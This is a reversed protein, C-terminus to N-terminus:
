RSAHHVGHPSNSNLASRKIYKMLAPGICELSLIEEAAGIGAAAKPMGYVASSKEDQAITHWGHERIAKLGLAGDRGMGTLLVAIAESRWHQTISLFFTDVSPRYPTHRPEPTYRLTQEHTLILHENTAALLVKGTKPHEGERILRVPMPVLSDMWEAMGQAFGKDIHVVVVIAAPTDAPLMKLVEIVAAPGGTSAGIGILLESGRVQKTGAKASALSRPDHKGLIRGIDSIKKQLSHDDDDAVPVKTVDLAGASLAEFALGLNTEMSATVVLIPCPSQQMIQRTAEVGDLGPMILDMLILDPKDEDNKTIAELGDKALWAVEQGPMDAVARRLAELTMACDNVIGIRM